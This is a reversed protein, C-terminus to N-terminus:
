GSRAEDHVGVLQGDLPGAPELRGSREAAAIASDSVGWLLLPVCALSLGATVWFVGRLGVLEGLLGGLLAGMPMTGWALLRYGANVRGLLQDPVIRQRLSVTIVNWTVNVFGTAVFAVVIPVVAATMAPAVAAVPFLVLALLLSTTTGLRRQIRDVFPTALLSGTAFATLLLGYGAETLGLPGPDVVYLALVADFATFALSSCSM